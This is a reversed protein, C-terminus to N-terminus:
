KLWAWNKNYRIRCITWRQVCFKKGIVDDKIGERIMRRIKHIDKEKLKSRCNKEGRPSASRGKSVRDRVNDAQTGIWLHDPRVCLPVDCKHLVCMGKPIKKNNAIEWSLHHAMRRKWCVIMIGYQFKPNKQLVSHAGTWLWCTNTKQVKSWFRDLLINGKSKINRNWKKM